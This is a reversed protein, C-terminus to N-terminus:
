SVAHQRDVIVVRYRLSSGPNGTRWHAFTVLTHYLRRATPRNSPSESMDSQSVGFCSIVGGGGEYRLAEGLPNPNQIRAREWFSPIALAGRGLRDTALRTLPISLFKPASRGLNYRSM